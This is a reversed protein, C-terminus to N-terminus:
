REEMRARNYLFEAIQFDIESDIDISREEPVTHCGLRGAWMSGFNLIYDTKMFYAAPVIEYLVEADQRRYPSDAIVKAAALSISGDSNLRAMNFDPNRRSPTVCIAGDLSKDTLAVRICGEIDETARLPATVPVALLYEPANVNNNSVFKVLHQWAAWEPSEDEALDAPRLFPVTAGAKKAEAAIKESDTSVYVESVGEVAFAHDIALSLLTKGDLLRLNKGPLGKSGGRAFVAAVIGTAL